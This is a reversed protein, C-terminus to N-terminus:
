ITKCPETGLLTTKWLVSCCAFQMAQLPESNWTQLHVDTIETMLHNFHDIQQGLYSHKKTHTKKVSVNEHSLDPSFTGDQLNSIKIACNGFKYPFYLNSTCHFQTLTSFAEGITLGRKPSSKTSAQPPPKDSATNYKHTQNGLVVLLSM